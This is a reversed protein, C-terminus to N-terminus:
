TSHHKWVPLLDLRAGGLQDGLIPPDEKTLFTLNVVGVTVVDMGALYTAGYQAANTSMRSAMAAIGSPAVTAQAVQKDAITARRLLISPGFTESSRL